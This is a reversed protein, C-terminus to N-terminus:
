GREWQIESGVGHHNPDDRDRAQRGQCAPNGPAVIVDVNRAVLDAALADFREYRGEAWRYEILLNQGEVYGHERLGRHFPELYKCTEPTPSNVSLFGIRAAKAPQAEAGFPASALALVLPALATLRALRMPTRGSVVDCPHRRGPGCGVGSNASDTRLFPGLFPSM